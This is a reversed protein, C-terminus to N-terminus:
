MMHKSQLLHTVYRQQKLIHSHCDAASPNAACAHALTVNPSTTDAAICKAELSHLPTYIYLYICVYMYIYICVYIYIYVYM